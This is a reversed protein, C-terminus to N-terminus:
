GYGLPGADYANGRFFRSSLAQGARSPEVAAAVAGSRIEGRESLLVFLREENKSRSGMKKEWGDMM